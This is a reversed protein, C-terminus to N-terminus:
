GHREEKTRTNMGSCPAWNLCNRRENESRRAIEAELREIEAVAAPGDPNVYQTPLGDGRHSYMALLRQKLAVEDAGSM